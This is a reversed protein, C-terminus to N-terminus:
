LFIEDAQQEKKDGPTGKSLKRFVEKLQDESSRGGSLKMVEAV